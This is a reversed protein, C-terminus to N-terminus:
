PIEGSQWAKRVSELQLLHQERAYEDEYFSCYEFFRILEDLRAIVTEDAASFPLLTLLRRWAPARLWEPPPKGTELIYESAKFYRTIAANSARNTTWIAVWAVMGGGILSAVIFLALLDM